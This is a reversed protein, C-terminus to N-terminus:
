ILFFILKVGQWDNQAPLKELAKEKTRKQIDVDSTSKALDKTIKSTVPVPALAAM